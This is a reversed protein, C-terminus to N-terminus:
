DMLEFDLKVEFIKDLANVFSQAIEQKKFERNIKYLPDKVMPGDFIRRIAQRQYHEQRHIGKPIAKITPSIDIFCFADEKNPNVWQQFGAEEAFYLAACNGKLHFELGCFIGENNLADLNELTKLDIEQKHYSKTQKRNSEQDKETMRSSRSNSEKYTIAKIEFQFSKIRFLEHYFDSFGQLNLGYLYFYVENSEPNSILYADQKLLFFAQELQDIQNKFAESYTGVRMCALGFNIELQEIQKVLVDTKESLLNIAILKEQFEKNKWFTKQEKKEKELLYQESMLQTFFHGEKFKHVIRRLGSVHNADTFKELEKFLLEFGMPNTKTHLFIENENAKLDIVLQEFSELQNLEKALPILLEERITRQIQRAGFKASYGKQIIFNYISEDINLIVERSVLGEKRRILEFEREILHRINEKSLPLFPIIQDIRNYLEPKFHKQVASLFHQMIDEKELDTKWGIKNHQFAQAGVNSTMIIISSCFNVLNGKSDTLRGESLIQLLLDFFNPHAKELEDFLLVCFPERKVAATLLGDSQNGIGILRIVDYPTAYESMDFRTIKSRSNFMFKALLKALETKGVGTPGVFLLSAIPKNAKSLATKVQVLLNVVADVAQKQGYLKSEFDRKVAKVDMAVSPNAIFIPIGTEECFHEIVEKSTIEFKKDSLLNANLLLNELSWIPKGPMGAYPSFRKTLRIIERIAEEKILIQQSSAISKVKKLIIDELQETPEAIRIIQFNSLYNPAHLEIYAMEEETCESIVNIEGRSIFPKLYDAISVPNNEYKGVEFLELLNRIFLFDQSKTLEKTLYEINSKWGTDQSLEKIMTAATTEWIIGPIRQMKMQYALEWVLATKGVGSPGVILINKNFNNKLANIVQEMEKERGYAEQQEVQLPLALKDLFLQVGDEPLDIIENINPASLSITDSEISIEDYWIAAVIQQVASLRKNKAFDFKVAEVMRFNLELLDEAFSELGLAPIAGWYGRKQLNHFYSFGVSFAPFSVGDRSGPFQVELTGIQYDNGQIEDLLLNFEGTKMVKEQILSEYIRSVKVGPEKIRLADKDTVPVLLKQGSALTIEFSNFPISLKFAM